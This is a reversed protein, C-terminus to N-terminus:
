VPTLKDFVFMNSDAGSDGNQTVVLYQGPRDLLGTFAFDGDADTTVDRLVVLSRSHLLLVRVKAAPSGLYTVTGSIIKTAAELVLTAAPGFATDIIRGHTQLGVETSGRLANTAWWVDLAMVRHSATYYTAIAGLAAM